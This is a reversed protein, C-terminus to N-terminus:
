PSKSNEVESSESTIDDSSGPVSNSDSSLTTTNDENEGEAVSGFHDADSNCDCPGGKGRESDTM